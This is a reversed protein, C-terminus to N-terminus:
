AHIDHSFIALSNGPQLGKQSMMEIFHDVGHDNSALIGIRENILCEPLPHSAGLM